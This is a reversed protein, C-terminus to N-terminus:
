EALVLGTRSSCETCGPAKENWGPAPLPAPSPAARARCLPLLHTPPAPRAKGKTGQVEKQNEDLLEQALAPDRYPTHPPSHIFCFAKLPGRCRTAEWLWPGHMERASASLSPLAKRAWAPISQGSAVVVARSKPMQGLGMVWCPSGPMFIIPTM